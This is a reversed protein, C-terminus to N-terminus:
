DEMDPQEYDKREWAQCSRPTHCAFHLKNCYGRQTYSNYIDYKNLPYKAKMDALMEPTNEYYECNGCIQTRATAEDILWLKAMKSWFPKNDADVNEPGLNWNDIANQTNALCEKNSVIGAPENLLGKLM